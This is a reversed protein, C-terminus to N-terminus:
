SDSIRMEMCVVVNFYITGTTAVRLNSQSRAIDWPLQLWPAKSEVAMAHFMVCFGM